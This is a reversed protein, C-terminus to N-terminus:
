FKADSTRQFNATHSLPIHELICQEKSRGGCLPADNAIVAHHISCARTLLNGVALAKQLVSPSISQEAADHMRRGLHM